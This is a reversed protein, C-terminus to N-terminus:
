ELDLYFFYTTKDNNIQGGNRSTGDEAVIMQFDWATGDYGSIDTNNGADDNELITTFIIQGTNDQLLLEVFKDTQFADDRHMYTSPCTNQQISSVDGVDLDPHQTMNFTEDIGDVINYTM